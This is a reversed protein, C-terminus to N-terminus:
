FKTVRAIYLDKIKNHYKVFTYEVPIKSMLSLTHHESIDIYLDTMKKTVRHINVNADSKELILESM